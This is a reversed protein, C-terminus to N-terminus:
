IAASMRIKQALLSCGETKGFGFDQPDEAGFAAKRALGGVEPGQYEPHVDCVWYGLFVLKTEKVIAHLTHGGPAVM